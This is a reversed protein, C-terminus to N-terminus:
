RGAEPARSGAILLAGIVAATVPLILWLWGPDPEQWIRLSLHVAVAILLTMGLMFRQQTWALGHWRTLTRQAIANAESAEAARRFRRVGRDVLAFAASGNLVTSQRRDDLQDPVTLRAARREADRLILNVIRTM